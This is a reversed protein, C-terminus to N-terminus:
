RLNPLPHLRPSFRPANPMTTDPKADRRWRGMLQMGIPLGASSVALPLSIAPYGTLNAMRQRIEASNHDLAPSTHLSMMLDGWVPMDATSEVGVGVSGIATSWTSGGPRRSGFM